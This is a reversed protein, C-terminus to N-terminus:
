MLFRIVVRRNKARNEETDNPAIPKEMGFGHYSIMEFPIGLRIFIDAVNKARKESLDKNYAANGSDDTYGEIIIRINKYTKVKEAVAEISKVSDKNIRESNLEFLIDSMSMRVENGERTVVEGAATDAKLVSQIDKRLMESGGSDEPKVSGEDEFLPLSINLVAGTNIGYLKYLDYAFYSYGGYIGISIYKGLPTQVSLGPMAYLGWRDGPANTPGYFSILGGGIIVSPTLIIKGGWLPVHYGAEGAFVKNVFSNNNYYAGAFLFDGSIYLGKPMSSFLANLDAEVSLGANYGIGDNYFDASPKISISLFGFCTNILLSLCFCLLFKKM